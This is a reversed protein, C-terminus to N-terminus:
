ERKESTILFAVRSLSKNCQIVKDIDIWGTAKSSPNSVYVQNGSSNIDLIAIYHTASTFMGGCSNDVSLVAPKGSKLHSQLQNKGLTYHTSYKLGATTLMKGTADPSATFNIVKYKRKAESILEGPNYSAGYGSAVIASSTPGCGSSSVTGESYKDSSYSGKSQKFEKYMRGNATFTSSYGDGETATSEGSNSSGNGSSNSANEIGASKYFDLIYEKVTNGWNVDCYVPAIKDVSYLGQTFYYSGNAINDAYDIIAVDYNPYKKYEGYSQGNYTGKLSGINYTDHGLIGSKDTAIGNETRFVSLSFVANLKYKDEAEKLANIFSLANTKQEGSLSDCAKTLQEKSLVPLAGEEDTKVIFDSNEIDSIDFASNSGSASSSSGTGGPMFCMGIIFACVSAIIATLLTKKM